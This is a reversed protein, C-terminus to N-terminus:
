RFDIDIDEAPEMPTYNESVCQIDYASFNDQEYKCLDKKTLIIDDLTPQKPEPTPEIEGFKQVTEAYVKRILPESIHGYKQELYDCKFDFYEKATM